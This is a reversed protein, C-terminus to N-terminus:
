YYFQFQLHSHIPTKVLVFTKGEFSKRYVTTITYKRIFCDALMVNMSFILLCYEIFNAIYFLIFLIKHINFYGETLLPYKIKGINIANDLAYLKSDSPIGRNFLLLGSLKDLRNKHLPNALDEAQVINIEKQLVNWWEQYAFLKLPEKNIM